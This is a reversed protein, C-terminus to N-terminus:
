AEEEHIADIWQWRVYEQIYINWCRSDDDEEPQLDVRVYGPEGTKLKVDFYIYGADASAKKISTFTMWEKMYETARKITMNKM